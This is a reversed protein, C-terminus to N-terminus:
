YGVDFTVMLNKRSRSCRAQCRFYFVARLNYKHEIFHCSLRADRASRDHTLGGHPTCSVGERTYLRQLVPDFNIGIGSTIAKLFTFLVVGAASFAAFTGVAFTTATRALKYPLSIVDPRKVVFASGGQAACVAM